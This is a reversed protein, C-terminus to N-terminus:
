AATQLVAYMPAIGIRVEMKTFLSFPMYTFSIQFEIETHALPSIASAFSKFDKPRVAM